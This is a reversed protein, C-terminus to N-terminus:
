LKSILKEVFKKAKEIDHADPHKRIEALYTNWEDEDTIIEQHIFHELPESAKGMCHFIGLLEINKNKCASEFTPICRGAWQDYLEQRRVTGDPLYTSHTFFGALKFKPSDPLKELFGKVPLALDSDHCPVGVLLLDYENLAEVDVSRVTRIDVEVKTTLVEKMTEAILKTNGTQSFYTVLVKM